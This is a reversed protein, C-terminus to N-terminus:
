AHWGGQETQEKDIVSSILVYELSLFVLALSIQHFSQTVVEASSQRHWWEEGTGMENCDCM